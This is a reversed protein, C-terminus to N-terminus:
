LDLLSRGPKAPKDAPKIDPKAAPAPKSEPAPASAPPKMRKRLLADSHDSRAYGQFGCWQCSVSALGNAQVKVPIADGCVLCATQGITKMSPKRTDTM